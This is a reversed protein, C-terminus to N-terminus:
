VGIFINFYIFLYFLSKYSVFLYVVYHHISPHIWSSSIVIKLVYAGLM